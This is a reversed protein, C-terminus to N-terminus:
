LRREKLEGKWVTERGLQNVSTPGGKVGDVCRGLFLLSMSTHFYGKSELIGLARVSPSSVWPFLPPLLLSRVM